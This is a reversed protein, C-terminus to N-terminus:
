SPGGWAGFSGALEIRNAVGLRQYASKLHSRVTQVSREVARAIEAATAAHAAFSAVEYQSPTLAAVPPLPVPAPPQIHVLPCPGDAGTGWDVTVAAGDVWSTTGPGKRLVALLAEHRGPVRLWGRAGASGWQVRGDRCLLLAGGGVTPAREAVLAAAAQSWGRRASGREVRLALWGWVAGGDVVLGDIWGGGAPGGEVALGRPRGAGCPLGPGWSLTGVPAGLLARARDIVPGAGVTCLQVGRLEQRHLGLRLWVAAAAASPLWSPRAPPPPPVLQLRRREALPGPLTPRAPSVLGAPPLRGSRSLTPM